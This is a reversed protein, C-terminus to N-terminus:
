FGLAFGINVSQTMPYSAGLSEPDTVKIKDFCLLDVGRLYIKASKMKVNRLMGSPLKYYVECNRLKLFSADAMWVSNLQLNNTNNETTLRPYKASLTAPTWRNNYYHESITTNDVLPVFLGQTQLLATYNGVGQFTASLGLGKYEVGLDFSYYIEPIIDNYGMAVRDYQNIVGDNNQDKYKIDGPRVAGFQQPPSNAIDADDRFFGDAQLAFIQGLSRGTTRLYDYAQPEELQEIIKNKYLTYKGGLSIILDNLKKNYNLGAELGRSDLIGENVFPSAVGLVASNRNTAVFIDYRREYFLDVNASFDKLFVADIGLNNKFAKERTSNLSPLRGEFRGTFVQYGGGLPFSNGTNFNQEWYDEGPIIDTSIIGSSLRLKLFDIAEVDQLFSENSLLWAASLVPSYGWKEGIALKNSASATLSFDAIYKNKWVYHAYASINQRFYTQHQGNFIHNEYSYILSTFLRSDTFQKQYDLNGVLNFHRQQGNLYSEFGINSSQGGEFHALEGPAGNVWSIVADSAYEYGRNRLELYAATNDYGVRAAVSLGQTLFDLKQTLRVDGNLTRNHGKTYGRAQTLAVPNMNEGWTENGGWLDDETKIPFAVAPVIYLKGIFNDSIVGPFNFENLSGFLGVELQTSSTLSIDLNTRINLKSFKMQTSYGENEETNKIFGSNDQLNLMTFYKTKEGGGRFSINYINSAGRERFIENVWNVNPYLHPYAGSQLANLENQSYRAGKEDNLLAENIANAYTYSDAFVPLRTQGTFAHDYSVSIDKTRYKGRKTVISLVGNVGRYGYLAVAAADRLVYVSEVEDPTLNQISREFGDVVVLINNDNLTKLGRILLTAGAEWVTGPNQMATLGLVNGFLSNALSLSSRRNIDESTAHSIASTSEGETQLIGFGKDVSQSAFDIEDQAWASM